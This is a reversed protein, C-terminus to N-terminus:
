PMLKINREALLEKVKLRLYEKEYYKWKFWAFAARCLLRGSNYRKRFLREYHDAMAGAYIPSNKIQEIRSKHYQLTASPTIFLDQSSM